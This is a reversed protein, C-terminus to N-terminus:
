LQCFQCNGSGGRECIIVSGLRKAKAAVLIMQPPNPSSRQDRLEIKIKLERRQLRM